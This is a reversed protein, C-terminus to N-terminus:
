GLMGCLAHIGARAEGKLLFCTSLFFTLLKALKGGERGSGREMGSEKEGEGWKEGWEREIRESEPAPAEPFSSCLWLGLESSLGAAPTLYCCPKFRGAGRGTGERERM